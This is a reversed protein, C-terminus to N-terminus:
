LVLYTIQKFLLSVKPALTYKKKMIKRRKWVGGRGRVGSIKKKRKKRSRHGKSGNGIMKVLVMQQERM